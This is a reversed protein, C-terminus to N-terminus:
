IGLLADNINTIQRYVRCACAEGARLRTTNVPLPLITRTVAPINAAQLTGDPHRSLVGIAKPQGHSVVFAPLGQKPHLDGQNRAIGALAGETPLILFVPQRLKM